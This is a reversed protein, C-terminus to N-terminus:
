DRGVELTDTPLHALECLPLRDADPAGAPFGVPERGRNAADCWRDGAVRKREEEDEVERELAATVVGDNPALDADRDPPDDQDPRRNPNQGGRPQAARGPCRKAHHRGEGDPGPQRNSPGLRGLAARRLEGPERGVDPDEGEREGRLPPVPQPARQSTDGRRDRHDRDQCERRSEMRVPEGGVLCRRGDLLRAVAEVVWEVVPVPERRQDRDSDGRDDVESPTRAMQDRACEGGCRHRRHRNRDEEGERPGTGQREGGRRQGEDREVRPAEREDGSQGIDSDSRDERDRGRALAIPEGVGDAARRGAALAILHERDHEHDTGAHSQDLGREAEGVPVPDTRPNELGDRRVVIRAVTAPRMAAM